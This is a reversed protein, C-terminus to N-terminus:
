DARKRLAAIDRDRAGATRLDIRLELFHDALMRASIYLVHHHAARGFARAHVAAASVAAVMDNRNVRLKRLPSVHPHLDGHIVGEISRHACPTAVLNERVALTVDAATSPIGSDVVDVAGRM